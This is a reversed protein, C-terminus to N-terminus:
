GDDSDRMKEFYPLRDIPVDIKIKSGGNWVKGLDDKWKGKPLSVERSDEPTLVPAVLYKDGLMFQDKCLEFGQNPFEYEMHRVIPEGTKSAYRALELIYPGFQKHLNAFKRCIELHEKDLIRWPAVSFQMMPMLAHIQCSRVILKQDIKSVDIPTMDPNLFSSFEGGGIMDPCAYPYGLLGAALMDPILQRIGDWSYSKDQLRQVLPQLGMKWCARYENYPFDLGMKAWSQCFDSPTAGGFFDVGYSVAAKDGADFKFGDVGYKKQTELLKNKLHERADPNTLDYCASMGNWWEVIAPSSGGKKKLLFGAKKLERYEASDPSVFPCIWLMVKFGKAHLRDTMAKPDPFKEARFDFNGYHNQWNDDVMFVGVPFGHKIINDAYKEIDAQNQNYMLEIWTNYQPMSFFVDQPIKRPADFYMKAAGLYADKLTKHAIVPEVKEFESEITIVGDKVSFKFPKDSWIYRGKSSVFLPASQNLYNSASLDKEDFNDYPMHSGFFTAAGWWKEGELPEITSIYPQTYAPSALASLALASIIRGLIDKM